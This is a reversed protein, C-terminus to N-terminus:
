TATRALGYLWTPTIPCSATPWFQAHSPSNCSFSRHIICPHTSTRDRFPYRPHSLSPAWHGLGETQHNLKKGLQREHECALEGMDWGGSGRRKKKTCKTLKTTLDSRLWIVCRGIVPFEKVVFPVFCVFFFSFPDPIM